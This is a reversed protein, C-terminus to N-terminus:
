EIDTNQNKPIIYNQDFNNDWFSQDSAPHDKDLVDFYCAFKFDKGGENINHYPTKFSWAELGDVQNIPGLEILGEPKGPWKIWEYGDDISYLIGVEKKYAIKNIYILGELHSTQFQEDVVVKAQILSINNGVVGRFYSLKYNFGYNNDWAEINGAQLKLTFDDNIAFIRNEDPLKNTFIQYSGYDKELKLRDTGWDYSGAKKYWVQVDKPADSNKVKVRLLTDCSSMGEKPNFYTYGFMLKVSM